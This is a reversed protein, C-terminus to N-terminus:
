PGAGPRGCDQTAPLFGLWDGEDDAPQVFQGGAACTLDLIGFGLDLLVRMDFSRTAQKLTERSPNEAAVHEARDTAVPRIVAPFPPPAVIRRIMAVDIHQRM